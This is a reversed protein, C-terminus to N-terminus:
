LLMMNLRQQPHTIDTSWQAKTIMEYQPQKKISTNPKRLQAAQRQITNKYTKARHRIYLHHSFSTLLALYPQMVSSSLKEPLINMHIAVRMIDTLLRNKDIAIALRQSRRPYTLNNEIHLFSCTYLTDPNRRVRETM